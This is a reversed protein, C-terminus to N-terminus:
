SDGRQKTVVEALRAAAQQASPLQSFRGLVERALDASEARQKAEAQLADIQERLAGLEEVQEDQRGAELEILRRKAEAMEQTAQLTKRQM